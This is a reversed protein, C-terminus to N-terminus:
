NNGNYGKGWFKGVMTSVMILIVIRVINYIFEDKCSKTYVQHNICNPIMLDMVAGFFIVSLILGILLGLFYGLFHLLKKNM